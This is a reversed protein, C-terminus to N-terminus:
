IHGLATGSLLRPPQLNLTSEGTKLTHHNAKSTIRTPALDAHSVINTPARRAGSGSAGPFAGHQAM